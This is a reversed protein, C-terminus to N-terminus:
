LGVPDDGLHVSSSKYKKDIERLRADLESYEMNKKMAAQREATEAASKRRNRLVNAVSLPLEQPVGPQLIWRRHKICIEEPYLKAVQAGNEMVTMVVGPSTVSEKPERALAADFMQKDVIISARAEEVKKQMDVSAHAKIKELEEGTARLNDAAANIEDLWRQRDMEWREADRDMDAMKQRIHSLEDSFKQEMLSQGKLIQQLAIAIELAEKNTGEVFKPSLLAKIAPDEGRGDTRVISQLAEQEKQESPKNKRHM